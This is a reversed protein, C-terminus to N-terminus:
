IAPMILIFEDHMLSQVFYCTLSKRKFPVTVLFYEKKGNKKIVKRNKNVIIAKIGRTEDFNTIAITINSKEIHDVVYARPKNNLSDIICEFTSQYSPTNTSYVTVEGMLKLLNPNDDKCAYLVIGNTFIHYDDKKHYDLRTQCARLFTTLNLITM